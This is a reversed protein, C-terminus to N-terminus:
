EKKEGGGDDSKAPAEGTDKLLEELITKTDKSGGGRANERLKKAAM